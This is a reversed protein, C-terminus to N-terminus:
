FINERELEKKFRALEANIEGMIKKASLHHWKNKYYDVSKASKVIATDIDDGADMREEFKLIAAHTKEASEINSTKSGIYIKNTIDIGYKKTIENQKPIFFSWFKKYEMKRTETQIKEERTAYSM